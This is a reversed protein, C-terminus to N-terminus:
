TSEGLHKELLFFVFTFNLYQILFFSLFLIQFSCFPSLLSYYCVFNYTFFSGPFLDTQKECHANETIFIGTLFHELVASICSLRRTLCLKKM